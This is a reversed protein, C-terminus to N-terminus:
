EPSDGNPSFGNHSSRSHARFHFHRASPSSSDSAGRFTATGHVPTREGGAFGEEDDAAASSEGAAQEGDGHRREGLKHSITNGVQKAQEAAGASLNKATEAAKGGATGASRRVRPNKALAATGGAVRDYLGRGIRSGVLLGVVTGGIFGAKGKM